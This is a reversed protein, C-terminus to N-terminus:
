QPLLDHAFSFQARGANKSAYLARDADILMQEGDPDAYDRSMSIGISGAVRCAKGDFDMPEQLRTLIRDAVKIIRDKDIMRHLLIVFEDGGFRVAADYSRTEDMLIKATEQLVFDGAAHGLTDNVEKFFDLDLHMVSYTENGAAYRALISDMARRNKLGTLTDTTAQQEAALKASELRLNQNRSEQMVADKAEMLYLLEITLDTPPFDSSTLNFQGVAEVASIGFSLDILLDTVCGNQGPFRMMQGKMTTEPPERLRLNLRGEGLTILDSISSISRPRRLEFVELFPAGVFGQGPRLKALTPGTHRIHGTCTVLLHMPVLRDLAEHPISIMEPIPTEHKM